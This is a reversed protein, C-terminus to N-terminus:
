APSAGAGCGHHLGDNVLRRNRLTEPTPKADEGNRTARQRIWETESRLHYLALFDTDCATREERNPSGFNLGGSIGCDMALRQPQRSHIAEM